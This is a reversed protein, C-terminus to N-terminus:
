DKLPPKQHSKSDLLSGGILIGIAILYSILLFIGIVIVTIKDVGAWTLFWGGILIMLIGIGAMLAFGIIPYKQEDLTRM